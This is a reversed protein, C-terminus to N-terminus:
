IQLMLDLIFLTVYPYIKKKYSLKNIILRRNLQLEDKIIINM